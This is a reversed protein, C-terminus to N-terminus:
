KLQQVIKLPINNNQYDMTYISHVRKSVQNLHKLIRLLPTSHMTVTPASNAKKLNVLQKKMKNQLLFKLNPNEIFGRELFVFM